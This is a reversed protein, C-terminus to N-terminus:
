EKSFFNQNIEDTRLAMPEKLFEPVELELLVMKLLYYPMEEPEATKIIEVIREEIM